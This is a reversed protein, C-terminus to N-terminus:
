RKPNTHSSGLRSDIWENSVFRRLLGRFTTLIEQTQQDSLEQLPAGDSAKWASWHLAVPWSYMKAAAQIREQVRLGWFLGFSDRFDLWLRDLSTACKRSPRLSYLMAAAALLALGTEVNPISTQSVPFPLFDALLLAQGSAAALAALWHRTPQTNFLSVLILAMVFWSRFGQIELPQGTNLYLAEAAPLALVAWLSLVVFNWPGDQPRKVGLLSISPCLLLMRVSYRLAEAAAPDVIMQCTILLELGATAAFAGVSWWWTAVLTTGEVKRRAIILAAIGGVFVAVVIASRM